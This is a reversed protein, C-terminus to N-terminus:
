QFALEFITTGQGRQKELHLAGLFSGMKSMEDAHSSFHHRSVMVWEWSARQRKAQGNEFSLWRMLLGPFNIYLGIPCATCNSSSGAFLVTQNVNGILYFWSRLWLIYAAITRVYEENVFHMRWWICGRFHIFRVRITSSLDLPVIKVLLPGQWNM